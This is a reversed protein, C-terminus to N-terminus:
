KLVFSSYFIYFTRKHKMRNSLKVITSYIVHSPSPPYISVVEIFVQGCHRQEEKRWSSVYQCQDEISRQTRPTERQKPCNERILLTFSFRSHRGRPRQIEEHWIMRPACFFAAGTPCVRSSNLPCM